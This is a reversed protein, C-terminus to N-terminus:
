LIHPDLRRLNGLLDRYLAHDVGREAPDNVKDFCRRLIKHYVTDLANQEQNGARLHSPEICGGQESLGCGCNHLIMVSPDILQLFASKIAQAQLVRDNMHTRAAKCLYALHHVRLKTTSTRSTGHPSSPFHDSFTLTQSSGDVPQLDMMTDDDNTIALIGPIDRDDIQHLSAPPVSQLFRDSNARCWERAKVRLTQSVIGPSKNLDFTARGAKCCPLEGNPITWFEIGRAVHFANGGAMTHRCIEDTYTINLTWGTDSGSFIHRLWAGFQGWAPRLDNELRFVAYLRVMHDGM